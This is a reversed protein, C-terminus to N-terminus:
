KLFAILDEDSDMLLIRKIPVAEDGFRGENPNPMEVTINKDPNEDRINELKKIFDNLEM